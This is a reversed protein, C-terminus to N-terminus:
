DWDPAVLLRGDASFTPVGLATATRGARRLRESLTAADLVVVQGGSLGTVALTSGDRSAGLRGGMGAVSAVLAGTVTDFGQIDGPPHAPSYPRCGDANM